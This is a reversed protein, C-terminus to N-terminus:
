PTANARTADPGSAVADYRSLRPPKTDPEALWVDRPRFYDLLPQLSVGPIERAWVVKSGDIDASNYVWERLAIDQPAYRVLVLHKGPLAALEDAFQARMKIPEYNDFRTKHYTNSFPAYLVAFMLAARTIGIGVPRSWAMWHRVHRLGQTALVFVTATLPAIYHLSFWARPLLTAAFVLATQVVLLRMRRDRLLRGLALVTPSLQPWLFFVMSLLLSYALKSAAKPLSTAGLAAWRHRKMTNYFLEFQPNLYHRPPPLKQWVFTPTDMYTRENVVYPMLMAKGTGRWNYYGMFAGGIVGVLLLPAVVRALAFRWSSATRRRIFTVLLVFCVPLCFFAGEYPRCNALIIVGVALIASNGITTPARREDEKGAGVAARWARLIRPLAGMVLAGGIAAVFGGMYSNMWYSFIAVKCMVLVAGVLAWGPPFWGQLMWLMAACMLGGSLLVGIWPNGLVQGVALAAGQGPPYKSEYTPHQNVQFTDFYLWLPHTPNTLRGHVFTDAQLLYAFEDQVTPFPVPVYWLVGLRIVITAAFIAVMATIRRRALRSGWTEIARFYREGFRPVFCAFIVCGLFILDRIIEKRNFLFAWVWENM